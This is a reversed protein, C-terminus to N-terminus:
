YCNILRELVMEDTVFGMAEMESLVHETDLRNTELWQCTSTLADNDATKELHKKLEDLLQEPTLRIRNWFSEQEKLLAHKKKSKKDSQKKSVSIYQEFFQVADHYNMRIEEAQSALLLLDPDNPSEAIMSRLDLVFRNLESRVKLPPLRRQYSGQESDKIIRLMRRKLELIQQSLQNMEPRIRRFFM